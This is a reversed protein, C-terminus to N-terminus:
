NLEVPLLVICTIILKLFDPIHRRLMANFVQSNDKPASFSYVRTDTIYKQEKEILQLYM